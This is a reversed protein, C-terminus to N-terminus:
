LLESLPCCDIISGDFDCTLNVVKKKNDVEREIFQFTKRKIDCQTLMGEVMVQRGGAVIRKYHTTREMVDTNKTQFANNLYDTLDKHYQEPIFDMHSRGILDKRKYGYVLPPPPLEKSDVLAAYFAAMGDEAPSSTLSLPLYKGHSTILNIPFDIVSQGELLTALMRQTSVLDEPHIFEFLDREVLQHEERGLYVHLPGQITLVKHNKVDLIGYFHSNFFNNRAHGSGQLTQLPRQRNCSVKQHIDRAIERCRVADETIIVDDVKIAQIHSDESLLKLEEWDDSETFKITIKM